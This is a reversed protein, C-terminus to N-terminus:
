KQVKVSLNSTALSVAITVSPMEFDVPYGCIDKVVPIASTGDKFGNTMTPRLVSTAQHKRARKSFRKRRSPSQKSNSASFLLNPEDCIIARVDQYQECVATAWQFTCDRMLLLKQQLEPCSIGAILRDRLRQGMNDLVIGSSPRLDNDSHYVVEASEVHLHSKRLVRSKFLKAPSHGSTSHVANRYQMM